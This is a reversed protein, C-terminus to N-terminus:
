IERMEGRNNADSVLLHINRAQGSLGSCFNGLQLYFIGLDHFMTKGDAIRGM